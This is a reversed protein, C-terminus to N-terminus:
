VNLGEDTFKRLNKLRKRQATDKKHCEKCYSSLLSESQFNFYFEEWSKVDDCIKCWKEQMPEITGEAYLKRNKERREKGKLKADKRYCEICESRFSDEDKYYYQDLPKEKDCNTCRKLEETM